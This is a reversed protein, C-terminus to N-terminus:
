RSSHERYWSKLWTKRNLETVQTPLCMKVIVTTSCLGNWILETRPDWAREPTLLNTSCPISRRPLLWGDRQWMLESCASSVLANALCSTQWDTWSMVHLTFCGKNLVNDEKILLRDKGQLYCCIYSLKYILRCPFSFDALFFRHTKWYWNFIYNDGFNCCFDILWASSGKKWSGGM